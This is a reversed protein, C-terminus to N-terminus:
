CLNSSMPRNNVRAEFQISINLCNRREEGSEESLKDISWITFYKQDHAHSHSNVQSDYNQNSDIVPFQLLTAVLLQLQTMSLEKYRFHFM